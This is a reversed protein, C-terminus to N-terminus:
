AATTYTLFGMAFKAAVSQSDQQIKYTGDANKTLLANTFAPIANAASCTQGHGTVAHESVNQGTFDAPAPCAAPLPFSVAINASGATTYEMRWQITVVKGIKWYRYVAQILNSPSQSGTWTINELTAETPATYDSAGSIASIGGVQGLTVSHPNSTNGIHTDIQAHTNTGIDSLLTHSTIDIQKWVAATLTSDVCVYSKDNTTDIWISGVSYGDGSDENATPATTANFKHLTNVVNGLGVDSKSVSVTPTLTGAEDNYSWTIGTGNQILSSVRDDVQENTYQAITSAIELTNAADDYTLDMGAGAVLFGGGFSDETEEKTYLDNQGKVPYGGPAAILTITAGSSITEGQATNGTYGINQIKLQLPPIVQVVQYYGGGTINVVQLPAIFDISSIDIIVFSPLAPKNVPSSAPQIFNSTTTRTM